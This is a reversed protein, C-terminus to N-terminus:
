KLSMLRLFHKQILPEQLLNEKLYDITIKELNYFNETGGSLEINKINKNKLIKLVKLINKDKICSSSIYIM